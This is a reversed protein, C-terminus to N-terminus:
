GVSAQLYQSFGYALLGVIVIASGAVSVRSRVWLRYLLATGVALAAVGLAAFVEVDFRYPVWTAIGLALVLAATRLSLPWRRRALVPWAILFAFPIAVLGFYIAGVSAAVIAESVSTIAERGAGFRQEAFAAGGVLWGVLVAAVWRLPAPAIASGARHSAAAQEETVGSDTM